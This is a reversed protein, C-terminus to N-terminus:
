DAPSSSKTFNFEMLITDKLNTENTLNSLKDRISLVRLKFVEGDVVTANKNYYARLKSLYNKILLSPLLPSPDFYCL